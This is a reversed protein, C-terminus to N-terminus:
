KWESCDVPQKPDSNKDQQIQQIFQQNAQQDIIWESYESDFRGKYYAQEWNCASKIQAPTFNKANILYAHDLNAQALNARYLNTNKLYAHDFNAHGLNAGYFNVSDLYAHDLNVSFLNATALNLLKLRNKAKVLLEVNDINEACNHHEVCDHILQQAVYLQIQRWGLYGVGLSVLLSAVLSTLRNIRPQKSSNPPLNHASKSQNLNMM